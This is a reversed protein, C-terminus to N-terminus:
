AHFSEDEGASFRGTHSGIFGRELNTADGLEITNKGQDARKGLFDVERDSM